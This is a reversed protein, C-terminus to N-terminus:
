TLGRAMVDRSAGSFVVGRHDVPFNLHSPRRASIQDTSASFFSRRVDPGAAISNLQIHNQTFVPGDPTEICRPWWVRHARGDDDLRIVSNQGVANAHLRGGIMALDHMYFSGPLTTSRVPILPRDRELARQDTVSVDSRDILGRAPALEFIQNPNRTSALHVVGRMRDVALGSPHPSRLYTQSRQHPTLALMLHEYERTVLLTIDHEALVQWWRGKVAFRLLAPEARGAESWQSVVQAPDRWEADHSM